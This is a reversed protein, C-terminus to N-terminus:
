QRVPGQDTGSSGGAPTAAPSEAPSSGPVSPEVASGVGNKLREADLPVDHRVAGINGLTGTAKGDVMLSLAGANGVTMSLGPHSPASYTEGKRLLRKQVVKGSSDRIEIWCDEKARLVVRSSPATAVEATDDHKAEAPNGDGTTAPSSSADTPNVTSKALNAKKDKGKGNSERLLKGKDPKAKNEGSSDTPSQTAAADAPPEANVAAAEASRGGAKGKGDRSPKGDKKVDVVKSEGEAANDM